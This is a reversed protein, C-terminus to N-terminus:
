EFSEPSPEPFNELKEAKPTFSNLNKSRVQAGDASLFFMVERWEGEESQIPFKYMWVRYRQSGDPGSQAQLPMPRDRGKSPAGTYPKVGLAGYTERLLEVFTEAREDDGMEGFNLDSLITGFGALPTYDKSKWIVKGLAFSQDSQRFGAVWLSPFRESSSQKLLTDEPKIRFSSDTERNWRRVWDEKPDAGLPSLLLSTLALGGLISCLFTKIKM